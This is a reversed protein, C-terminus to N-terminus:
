VGEVTNSQADPRARVFLTSLRNTVQSLSDFWVEEVIRILRIPDRVTKTKKRPIGQVVEKTVVKTAHPNVPVLGCIKKM